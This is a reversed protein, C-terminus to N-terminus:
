KADKNQIAHKILNEIYNSMTRNESEALKQIQKKLEPTVRLRITESKNM